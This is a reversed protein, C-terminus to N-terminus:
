ARSPLKYPILSPTSERYAEYAAGFKQILAGEEIRIRMLLAPVLLVVAVGLSIPANLMSAVATIELLMSLYTPHRVWRFPGENVLVHSTRIEVHLSWFKGLAHIAERRLRISAFACLWGVVVFMPNFPFGSLVFEVLSGVVALTGIAVFLRLTLREKIEGVVTDRHARLEILRAAYVALASGVSLCAGVILYM